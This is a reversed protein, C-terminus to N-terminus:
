YLIIAFKLETFLNQGGSKPLRPFELKNLVFHGLSDNSFHYILWTILNMLYSIIDLAALVLM